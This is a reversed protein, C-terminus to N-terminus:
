KQSTRLHVNEAKIEPGARQEMPTYRYGITGDERTYKEHTRFQQTFVFEKKMTLKSLSM